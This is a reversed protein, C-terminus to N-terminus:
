QAHWAGLRAIAEGCHNGAWAEQPAQVASPQRAHSGTVWGDAEILEIAERVKVRRGGASFRSVMHMMGITWENQLEDYQELLRQYTAWRM